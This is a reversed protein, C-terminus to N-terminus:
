PSAPEGPRGKKAEGWWVYRAGTWYVAGSASTLVQGAHEVGAADLEAHAGRPATGTPAGAHLLLYMQRAQPDRWGRPGHGHLIALLREGDAVVPRVRPPGPPPSPAAPACDQITWNAVEDNVEALHGAAPRVEVALDPTGDGNFDGVLGEDRLLEVAPGFARV